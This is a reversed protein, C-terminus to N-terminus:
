FGWTRFSGASLQDRMTIRAMPAEEFTVQAAWAKLNGNVDCDQATWSLSLLRCRATVIGPICLIAPPTTGGIVGTPTEYPLLLAELFRRDEELMQSILEIDNKSGESSGVTRQASGITSAQTKYNQQALSKLMMLANEYVEFTWTFNETHSYNQYQHSMGMVRTKDFVASVQERVMPPRFMFTMTDTFETQDDEYLILNRVYGKVDGDPARSALDGLNTGNPKETPSAM